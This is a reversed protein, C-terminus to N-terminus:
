GAIVPISEAVEAVEAVEPRPVLFRVEQFTEVLGPIRPIKMGMPVIEWDARYLLIELCGMEYAWNCSIIQAGEVQLGDLRRLTVCNDTTEWTQLYQVILKPDIYALKFRRQLGDFTGEM